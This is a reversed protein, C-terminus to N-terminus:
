VHVIKVLLAGVQHKPFCNNSYAYVAVTTIMIAFEAIGWGM